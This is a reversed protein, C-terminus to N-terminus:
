GANQDEQFNDVTFEQGTPLRVLHVTEHRDGAKVTRSAVRECNVTVGSVTTTGTM